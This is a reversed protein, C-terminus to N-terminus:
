LQSREWDSWNPAGVNIALLSQQSVREVNGDENRLNRSVGPMRSYRSPNRNHPDLNLDAFWQYIREVRDRYESIDAASVKVWGHISKNGSDIIAALPMHSDILYAYQLEKPIPNSLSDKDFEVLVHRFATVDDDRRGNDRLPNIRLFTGHPDNLWHMGSVGNFKDLHRLFADREYTTGSDPAFSGNWYNTTGIAIFEFQQFCNEVIVRDGDRMPEPLPLPEIVGDPRKPYVRRQQPRTYRLLPLSLASLCPGGIPERPPRSYASRIATRAEHEPLGDAVARPLIATNAEDFSKKADRFQIAASFAAANRQGEAAGYQLYAITVPPLKPTETIPLRPM